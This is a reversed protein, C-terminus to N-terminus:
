NFKSPDIKAFEEPSLSFIDEPTLKRQSIQPAQRPAAAARRAQATQSATGQKLQTTTAVAPAQAQQVQQMQEPTATAKLLGAERLRVETDRFLQLMPQAALEPQFLRRRSVEDMIQQYEGRTNMEQLVGLIGPNETIFKQSVDDWSQAIGTFMEQFGPQTALTEITDNLQMQIDTPAQYSTQYNDAQAVDFEYLDIGSDKVLKAIAEPKKNHLDLLFAVTSEDMANAQQLMQAVRRVPKLAAMKEHYNAGMQMLKVAEDASKITLDRGNAKFPKGVIQEYLAKYDPANENSSDPDTKQPQAKPDTDEPNDSTEESQEPDTEPTTEEEPEVAEEEEETEPIEEQHEEPTEEATALADAEAAAKEPDFKSLEDESMSFIDNPDLQENSNSM